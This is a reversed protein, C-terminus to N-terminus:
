IKRESFEFPSFGVLRQRVNAYECSLRVLRLRLMKM